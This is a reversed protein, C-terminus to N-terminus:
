NVASGRLASVVLRTRGLTLVDGDNIPAITVPRDNVLTGNQSQLDAVIVTGQEDRRLVAHRRSVSPDLALVIQNTLAERGISSPLLLSFDAGQHPGAVAILHPTSAPSMSTLTSSIAAVTILGDRRATPSITGRRAGCQPCTTAGTPARAGCELCFSSTGPRLGILRHAVVPESVNKLTQDGLAETEVLGDVMRRTMEGLLTQAPPAIQTLRAALNVSHGIVTYDVRQSSGFNGALVEGSEIGIGLGLSPTGHEVWRQLLQAHRAQMELAVHVARDAHDSQPYPVGFVAMIGDGTCKDLVGEYKFVAQTMQELFENLHHAVQLPPTREAFRTFGRLDCFLTTVTCIQGPGLAAYREELVADAVRPSLYRRLLGRVREAEAALIAESRSVTEADAM